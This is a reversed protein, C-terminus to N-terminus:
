REPFESFGELSENILTYHDTLALFAYYVHLRNELNVGYKQYGAIVESRDPDFMAGAPKEVLDFFPWFRWWELM